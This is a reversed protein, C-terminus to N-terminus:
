KSAIYLKSIFNAIPTQSNKIKNRLSYFIKFIYPFNKCLTIKRYDKKSLYKSNCYNFICFDLIEKLESKKSTKINKDFLFMQSKLIRKYLTKAIYKMRGISIPSNARYIMGEFYDIVTDINEKGLISEVRSYYYYLPTDCFVIQNAKDYLKHMVWIDEYKKGLPFKIDAFLERKYLKNWAFNGFNNTDYLMDLADSSNLVFIDDSKYSTHNITPNIFYYGCVSIDCNNNIANNLLVDYMTKVLKDDSDVFAIYEGHSHQVGFNRADSLGGNEKDFVKVRKDKKAYHELIKRSNDTSGDNVCIIELNKYTQNIVSELCNSLFKEVNYVPIVISVLSNM